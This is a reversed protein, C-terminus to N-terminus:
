LEYSTTIMSSVIDNLLRGRFNSVATHRKGDLKVMQDDPIRGMNYPAYIILACENPKMDLIDDIDTRWDSWFVLYLSFHEAVHMDEKKTIVRINKEKFLKSDLLLSKLSEANDGKVFLAIERKSLGNGLRLLVPFIGRLWLIIAYVLGCILVITEVTGIFAIFPLINNM